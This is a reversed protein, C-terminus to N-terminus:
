TFLILISVVLGYLAIGEGLVVFILAKSFSKANESTAGIAAPAASAVAIGGGIGSISVALAAAIYKLGEAIGGSSITDTTEESEGILLEERAAGESDDRVTDGAAVAALPTAVCIAAVILLSLLHVRVSIKMGKGRKFMRATSFYLILIAAAVMLAMIFYFM